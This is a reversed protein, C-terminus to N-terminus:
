SGLVTYGVVLETDELGDLLEEDTDGVGPLEMVVTVVVPTEPWGVVYM